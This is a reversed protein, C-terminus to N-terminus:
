FASGKSKRNQFGASATLCAVKSKKVGANLSWFPWLHLKEPPMSQNDALSIKLHALMEQIWTPSECILTKSIKDFIPCKKLTHESNTWLQNTPQNTTPQKTTQNNTPQQNTTSRKTLIRTEATLESWTEIRGGVFEQELSCTLFLKKNTAMYLGIDFGITEWFEVYM